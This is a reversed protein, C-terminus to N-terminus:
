FLFKTGLAVKMVMPIEADVKIKGVNWVPLNLNIDGFINLKTGMSYEGGFGGGFILSTATYAEDYQPTYDLKNYRESTSSVNLFQVGACAQLYLRFGDDLLTNLFCLRYGLRGSRGSIKYDVKIKLQFQDPSTGIYYLDEKRQSHVPFYIDLDFFYAQNDDSVSFMGNVGAGFTTGTGILSLSSTHVGLWIYRNGMPKLPIKSKVVTETKKVEPNEVAMLHTTTCSLILVFFIAKKSM